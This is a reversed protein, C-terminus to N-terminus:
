MNLWDIIATDAHTRLIPNAVGGDAEYHTCSYKFSYLKIGYRLNWIIFCKLKNWVIKKKLTQNM